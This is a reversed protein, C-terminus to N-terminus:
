NGSVFTHPFGQGTSLLLLLMELLCPCAVPSGTILVPAAPKPALVLNGSTYAHM